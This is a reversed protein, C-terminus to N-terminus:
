VVIEQIPEDGRVVPHMSFPGTHGGGVSWRGVIRGEGDNRGVYEVEHKGLYQKTMRLEGTTPDFRGAFVFVGVVDYGRGTIEGTPVFRLEFQEMPQRGLIDQQWFGKWPGSAYM